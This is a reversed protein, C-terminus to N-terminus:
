GRAQGGLRGGAACGLANGLNIGRGLMRNYHFAEEDQSLASTVQRAGLLASGLFLASSGPPKNEARM